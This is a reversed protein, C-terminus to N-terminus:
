QDRWCDCSNSGERKGVRGKEWWRMAAWSLHRWGVFDLKARLSSRHWWNLGLSTKLAVSKPDGSGFIWQSRKEQFCVPSRKAMCIWPLVNRQMLYLHEQSGLADEGVPIKKGTKQLVSLTLLGECRAEPQGWCWMSDQLTTGQKPHFSNNKWKLNIM